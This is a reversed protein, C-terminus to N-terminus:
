FVGLILIAAIIILVFTFLLTYALITIAKKFDNKVVALYTPYGFVISGTTAASFVFLNLFLFFGLPSDEPKQSSMFNFFAAIVSIYITLGVTQLAGITLPKEKELNKLM